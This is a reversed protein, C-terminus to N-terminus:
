GARVATRRNRWGADDTAMRLALQTRSSIRLKRYVSTLHVEVARVSVFLRDAVERNTAGSAVIEAVRREAPTLRRTADGAPEGAGRGLMRLARASWLGAGLHEFAELAAELSARAAKRRRTRREISGLVFRGRALDFPQTGSEHDDLARKLANAALIPDGAAATHLARGRAAALLAWARGLRAADAEFSTLLEDARDLQGLAILAEIEDPVFTLVGPERIGVVDRWAVLPGLRDHAAAPEDLSLEVFGLVTQNLMMAFVSGVQEALELGARASARAEEVLGLHAEVLGRASLVMARIPEQGTQLAITHAEEAQRLAAAWDGALTATESMQSLLFPLSTEDGTEITRRHLEEFRRRAGDLDGSWKLMMGLIMSPRWEIPVEPRPRELEVSRRMVEAQIGAGLLFDAMGTAALLEPLMEDDARGEILRLASRAHVAADPVDGCLAVAWALDREIGARLSAEAGAEGLARTLLEAAISCSDNRYRVKALRRLIDARGPGPGTRTALEELLDRARGTDGAAFHHEAAEIRRRDGALRDRRSTLRYAQECLDAAADPAGRAAARRAAEDLATAVAADPGAAALALHRARQELNPVLRALRGHFSRRRDAGVAHYLMSAFLPHSFRLQDGAVEVVGARVAAEVSALVGEPGPAAQELLEITPEPVAAALFLVERVEAPLGALREGIFQQLTGPVSLRQGPELRVEGRLMARGIELAFLPNGGSAAAILPLVPRAFSEGLRARFLEDLEDPALPGPTLRHPDRQSLEGGLLATMLPSTGPRLAVVTGVRETELRRVVFELVRSSARDMWQPDDVALLVPSRESISRVIGLTAVSISRQDPAPGDPDEMLVAVKLARYQPGPLSPHPEDLVGQLLDGLAAFALSAESEGPHCALVRFGRTRAAVVAARWLTTKGTGIEGEILLAAPGRPIDELFREVSALEVTRGFMAESVGVSVLARGDASGSAGGASNRRAKVVGPGPQPQPRLKGAVGADSAESAQAYGVDGSALKM